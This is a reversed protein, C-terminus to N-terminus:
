VQAHCVFSEDVANKEQLIIAEKELILPIFPADAVQANGQYAWAQLCRYPMTDPFSVSSEPLRSLASLLVLSPDKLNCDGSLCIYLRRGHCPM